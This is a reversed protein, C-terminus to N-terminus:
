VRGVKSKDIREAKKTKTKKLRELSRKEPVGKSSIKFLLTKYDLCFHLCLVSTQRASVFVGAM